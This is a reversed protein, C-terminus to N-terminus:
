PEPLRRAKVTRALDRLRMFLNYPAARGTDRYYGTAGETFSRIGADRVRAVTPPAGGSAVLVAGLPQVVGIDTARLSRVPGVDSPVATHFFAAIRTMGGEVLEEVLLDASGLGLQPSSSSTNDVKVGIVPRDVAREGLGLGTLPSIPPPAASRGGEQVEKQETATPEEDGTCGALLLATALVAVLPRVGLSRPPRRRPARARRLHMAILM